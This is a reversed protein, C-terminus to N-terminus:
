RRPDTRAEVVSSEHGTAAVAATRREYLDIMVIIPESAAWCAIYPSPILTCKNYLQRNLIPLRQALQSIRHSPSQPRPLGLGFLISGSVRMTRQFGWPVISSPAVPSTM